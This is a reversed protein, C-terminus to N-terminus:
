LNNLKAFTKPEKPVKVFWSVKRNANKYKTTTAPYEATKKVIRFKKYEHWEKDHDIQGASFADTRFCVPCINVVNM